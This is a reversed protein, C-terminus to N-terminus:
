KILSEPMEAEEVWGWSCAGTSTFAMIGGLAATLKAFVKSM